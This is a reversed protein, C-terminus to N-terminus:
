AGRIDGIVLTLSLNVKLLNRYALYLFYKASANNLLICIANNIWEGSLYSDMMVFSFDTDLLRSVVM